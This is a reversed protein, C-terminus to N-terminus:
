RTGKYLTKSASSLSRYQPPTLRVFALSKWLLILFFAVCLGLPVAQLPWFQSFLWTSPIFILLSAIHSHIIPRDLGQAYLAYHPVMGVSYLLTTLLIWPVLSQNELYLPKDLWVLLPDIILLTTVAFAGSLLLTQLLLTRLKLCFAASDKNHHASILGPYIFAFVGADLFSLLATSIGMFLVYAGLTGLGMLDAFWYRDLTFIGRISLTAMLLPVAVKLGKGIWRWDIKNHWGSINLQKLRYVGLLLAVLGGLAWGGFVFDLNRTEAKFFMISTVLVAWIGSRLFLVVSAFLQESIAILFRGLEQTLHELVLLIFFWGAIRWPLLGTLFIFVLLPLVTAYLLLSLVGQDKLLGGWEHRERKIIERTTFTHFDVGLLFLSYSITATLLGYLGLEKPEVFKALFFMLLFKSALTTGRLAINIFRILSQKPM